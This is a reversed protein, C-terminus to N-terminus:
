YNCVKIANSLSIFIMVNELLQLAGFNSTRRFAFVEFYELGKLSYLNYFLIYLYCIGYNTVMGEKKEGHVLVLFLPMDFISKWPKKLCLWVKKAKTLTLYLYWRNTCSFSRRSHICRGIYEVDWGKGATQPVESCRCITWPEPLFPLTCWLQLWFYHLFIKSCQKAM